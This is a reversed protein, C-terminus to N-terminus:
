AMIFHWRRTKLRVLGSRMVVPVMLALGFVSRFFVIEVTHFKASLVRIAILLVAFSTAALIMWACGRTAPSLGFWVARM